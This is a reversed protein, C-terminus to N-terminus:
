EDEGYIIDKTSCGFHEALLDVPVVVYFGSEGKLYSGHGWIQKWNTRIWKYLKNM